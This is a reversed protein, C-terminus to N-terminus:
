KYKRMHRLSLFVDYTCSAPFNPIFRVEGGGDTCNSPGTGDDGSAFLISDGRAGLKAFLECIAEAYEPPLGREESGYSVSITQPITPQAILYNYWELYIDGPAPAGTTDNIAYQGGISYYTTPTPYTLASAYQINMNPEISPHSPEYDGGNVKVVTFNADTADTRLESMFKTLDKDSPYLKNFGAIGLGNSHMSVPRYAFTGYLWRLYDPTVFNKEPEEERSSPVKALKGSAAKVETAAARVPHSRPTMQLTQTSAFFTTPAITKVHAHLVGPLAYGVTRIITENTKTHRYLEYSAGLLENARTMPVGTLTLWSGGDIMSVSSPPVSNYHLWSNVLALTDPHPAVLEAVQEQSLHKGYRCILLPVRSYMRVHLTPPPSTSQINLIASKM